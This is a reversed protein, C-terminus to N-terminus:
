NDEFPLWHLLVQILSFLSYVYTKNNVAM